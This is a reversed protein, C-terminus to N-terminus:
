HKIWSSAPWLGSILGQKGPLGSFELFEKEVQSIAANSKAGGGESGRSSPHVVALHNSMALLINQLDTVGNPIGHECVKKM